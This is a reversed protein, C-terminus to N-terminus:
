KHILAAIAQRTTAVGLKTRVNRLHAHFTHRNMKARRAGDAESDADRMVMLCRLEADTLSWAAAPDTM